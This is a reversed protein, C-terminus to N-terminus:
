MVVQLDAALQDNVPRHPIEVDDVVGGVLHEHEGTPDADRWQHRHRAPEEVGVGIDVQLEHVTCALGAVDDKVALQFM